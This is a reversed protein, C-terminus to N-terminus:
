GHIISISILANAPYSKTWFHIFLMLVHGSSILFRQQIEKMMLWSMSFCIFPNKKELLLSLKLELFPFNVHKLITKWSVARCGMAVFCHNLFIKDSLLDSNCFPLIFLSVWDIEFCLFVFPSCGFNLWTSVGRSIKFGFELYWSVGM